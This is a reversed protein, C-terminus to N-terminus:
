PTEGRLTFQATRALKGDLLVQVTWTGYLNRQTIHTGAIPLLTAVAPEGRSATFFHQPSSTGSISRARPQGYRVNFTTSKSVYLNGDPLIFNVTQTHTGSLEPWVVFVYLDRLKRVSFTQVSSRCQPTDSTCFFVDPSNFVASAKEGNARGGPLMAERKGPPLNLSRKDQAQVSLTLALAVIGVLALAGRYQSFCNMSKHNREASHISKGALKPCMKNGLIRESILGPTPLVAPRLKVWSM